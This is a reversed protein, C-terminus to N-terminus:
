KKYKIVKRGRSVYIGPRPNEVRRGMLDYLANNMTHSAEDLTSIGAATNDKGFFFSIVGDTEEINLIPKGMLRVNNKTTNFLAASPTSTDTLERNVLTDSVFPYATGSLRKNRNFSDYM